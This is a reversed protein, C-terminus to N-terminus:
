AAPEAPHDALPQAAAPAIFADILQTFRRHADIRAELRRLGKPALRYWKRRRGDADPDASEAKVEEWRTTVLGQKELRTLLPYLVGPTLRFAGGSRAQVIRSVAYGYQPADRLVSLVLLEAHDQKLAPTDAPM